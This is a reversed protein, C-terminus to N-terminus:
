STRRVWATTNPGGPGGDLPGDELADDQAGTETDRSLVKVEIGDPINIGTGEWLKGVGAEWEWEDWEKGMVNRTRAVTWGEVNTNLKRRGRRERTRDRVPGPLRIEGEGIPKLEDDQFVRLEDPVAPVDQRLVRHHQEAVAVQSKVQVVPIDPLDNM